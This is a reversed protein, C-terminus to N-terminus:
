SAKTVHHDFVAELEQKLVDKGGAIDTARGIHPTRFGNTQDFLNGRDEINDWRADHIKAVGLGFGTDIQVARGDETVMWNKAHRDWNGTLWDNIAMRHLDGRYDVSGYLEAGRADHAKHAEKCNPECFAQLHGGGMELALQLEDLGTPAGLRNLTPADIANFQVTDSGVTLGFIKNIANAVMESKQENPVIKYAYKTGDKMRLQLVFGDDANVGGGMRTVAEVDEAKINKM